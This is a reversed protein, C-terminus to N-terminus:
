PHRGHQGALFGQVLSLATNQGDTTTFDIQQSPLTLCASGEALVAAKMNALQDHLAQLYPMQVRETQYQWGRQHLREFCHEPPLEVFIYADPNPVQWQQTIGGRMLQYFAYEDASLHGQQYLLEVYVRANTWIGADVFFLQTAVPTRQKAEAYAQAYDWCYRLQATFAWRAPASLFAPLFANAAFPEEVPWAHPLKAALLALLTTKGSAMNGTICVTRPKAPLNSSTSSM